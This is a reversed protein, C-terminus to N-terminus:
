RHTFLYNALAGFEAPTLTEGRIQDPKGLTRIAQYVLEKSVGLYSANALSNVLMKRRQGFSARVVRFFYDRDELPFPPEKRVRLTVVSSDVNPQPTFVHPPVSFCVTGESFYGISVSLAGYEKGGPMAVMREAVEKQVLFTLSELEPLREELFKMVIPTTIYYPLNSVVRVRKFPSLYPRLIDERINLKLIDACLVTLNGYQRCLYQLPEWLRKDIEVAIVKGASQALLGTMVGLGPGVEIILDEPGAESVSVIEQVVGIDNLFNQGLSKNPRIGFRELRERTNFNM